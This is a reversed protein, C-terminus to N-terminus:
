DVSGAPDSTALTTLVSRFREVLPNGDNTRWVVHLTTSTGELPRARVGVRRLARHSDSMVAAGFGAAVLALVTQVSRGGEGIRPTVGAQDCLAM